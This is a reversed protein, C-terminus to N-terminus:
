SVNRHIFTMWTLFPDFTTLIDTFFGVCTIAARVVCLLLLFLIARDIKLVISVLDVVFCVGCYLHFVETVHVKFEDGDSTRTDGYVTSCIPLKM